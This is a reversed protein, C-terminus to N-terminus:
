RTTKVTLKISHHNRLFFTEVLSEKQVFNNVQIRQFVSENSLHSDVQYQIITSLQYSM